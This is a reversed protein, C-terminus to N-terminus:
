PSTKSLCQLEQIQYEFEKKRRATEEPSPAPQTSSNASPQSAYGPDLDELTSEALILAEKLSDLTASSSKGELKMHMYEDHRNKELSYIQQKLFTIDAQPPSYAM